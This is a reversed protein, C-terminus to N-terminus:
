RGLATQLSQIVQELRQNEARVQDPDFRGHLAREAAVKGVRSELVDYNNLTGRNEAHLGKATDLVSQPDSSDMHYAGRTGRHADVIDKIVKMADETAKSLAAESGAGADSEHGQAAEHAQQFREEIKEDLEAFRAEIEDFPNGKQELLHDLAPDHLEEVQQRLRDFEADFGAVNLDARAAVRELVELVSFVPELAAGIMSRYIEPAGPGLEEPSPIDWGLSKLADYAQTVTPDTEFQQVAEITRSHAPDEMYQYDAAQAEQAPVLVRLAGAVLGVIRVSQGILRKRELHPTSSSGEDEVPPTDM